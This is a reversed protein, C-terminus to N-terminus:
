NTQRVLLAGCFESRHETHTKGEELKRVGTANDVYMVVGEKLWEATWVKSYRKDEGM